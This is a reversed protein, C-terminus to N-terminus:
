VVGLCEERRILKMSDLWTIWSVFWKTVTGSRQVLLYGGHFLLLSSDTSLAKAGRLKRWKWASYYTPQGRQLQCGRPLGPDTVLFHLTPQSKGLVSSPVPYELFINIGSFSNGLLPHILKQWMWYIWKGGWRHRFAVFMHDTFDYHIKQVIHRRPFKNHFKENIWQPVTVIFCPRTLTFWTLWFSYTSCGEECLTKISWFVKIIM